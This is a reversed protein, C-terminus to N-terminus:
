YNIPTCNPNSKYINIYSTATATNNCSDTVTCRITYYGPAYIDHIFDGYNQPGNSMTVWGGSGLQYEFHYNYLGVCGTNGRGFNAFFRTVGTDVQTTTCTGWTRTAPNCLDKQQAGDACLTVQMPKNVILTYTKVTPSYENTNLTASITYIGSTPYAHTMTTRNDTYTIGTGTTWHRTPVGGTTVLVDELSFTVSQGELIQGPTAVINFNPAENQYHYRYRERINNDHDRVIRLRNLGDYEMNVSRGNADTEKTVGVLPKYIYAISQPNSSPNTTESALTTNNNSYTLDKAIGSKSTMSTPKGHVTNIQISGNDYYHSPVAFQGSANISSGVYGNIIAKKSAMFGVPFVQNTGFKQYKTISGSVLYRNAGKQVENYEEVVVNNMHKTRLLNIAKGETGLNADSNQQCNLYTNFCDNECNTSGGVCAVQCNFLQTQCDTGSYNYDPHTVYKMSRVTKETPSASNWSSVERLQFYMDTYAYNEISTTTKTQSDQDYLKVTKQSLVHPKSMLTYPNDFTQSQNSTFPIVVSETVSITKIAPISSNYEFIEESLKQGSQNIVTKRLPLGREWFKTSVIFIHSGTNLNHSGSSPTYEHVIKGKSKHIEEVRLYSVFSGNTEFVDGLSHSYRRTVKNPVTLHFLPRRFISGSSTGSGFVYKYEIESVIEPGQGVIVKEIRNGAVFPSPLGYQDLNASQHPGMQYEIYSGGRMNIRTLLNAKMNTTCPARDAGTLVTPTQIAPIWDDVFNCNYLGLYDFNKSDRCPLNVSTVYDFSYMPTGGRDSISNLKLRKCSPSGSSVFYGYDFKLKEVEVNLHDVVRIVDLKHGGNVDERGGSYSFYVTGGSSSISSILRSFQTLEYTENKLVNNEVANSGNDKFYSYNFYTQTSLVYNFFIEDTGNASVIKDLHWTSVTNTYSLTNWKRFNTSERSAATSGFLYRTGMQDVIEWKGDSGARCIGPFVQLDQFPMLMPVGSKDLIFSGSNGMFSFTFLDPQTDQPNPKCFGGDIDDPLGRVVRTIIGGSVLSWGLGTSPAVDQVRHGFSNYVLSVSASLEKGPISVLPVSINPSGTHHNVQNALRVIGMSNPSPGVYNQAMIGSFVSISFVTFLIWRIM